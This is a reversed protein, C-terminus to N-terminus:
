VVRRVSFRSKRSPSINELITWHRHQTLALLREGSGLLLVGAEVVTGLSYVHSGGMVVTGEGVKRLVASGGFVGDM